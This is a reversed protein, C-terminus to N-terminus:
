AMETSCRKLCGPATAMQWVARSSYKTHSRGAPAVMSLLRSVVAGLEKTRDDTRRLTVQAMTNPLVRAAVPHGGPTISISPM